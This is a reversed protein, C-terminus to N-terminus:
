KYWLVFSHDGYSQHLQTLAGGMLSNLFTIRETVGAYAEGLTIAGNGDTDAPLSGVPVMHWEDYGSGYCLGYTFAGFSKGFTDKVTNATQDSRCATLVIYGEDALNDASRSQTAFAGIVASNFAKLATTDSAAAADTSRGIFAGSNCCDLTVIKAGPIADLVTRLASAPMFTNGVCILTGSANGHGSFHFLSVDGPQADAFASLIETRMSAATVNQRTTIAYGAGTMSSLMTQMATVDTDCGALAITEGPYTNGIILARYDRQLEGVPLSASTGSVVTDGLADTVTVRATCSGQAMPAFRVTPETTLQTFIEGNVDFEWLCTIEGYAGDVAVTWTVFRGAPTETVGPVPAEAFITQYTSANVGEPVPLYAPIVLETVGTNALLLQTLTRVPQGNLIKPITVSGELASPIVACLPLAEETVAYYLGGEEVLTKVDHFGPLSAAASEAPGFIYPVDNAAGEALLTSASHLYLYAAGSGRLVDKGVHEVSAPLILADIAADAFAEDAVETVCDPVTIVALATLPLLLLVSLLLIIRKM